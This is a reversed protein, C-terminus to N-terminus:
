FRGGGGGFSGGGFGGFGGGGGFGGFGGSSSHSISDIASFSSYSHSPKYEDKKETVKAKRNGLDEIDYDHDDAIDKAESFLMGVILFIEGIEIDDFFEDENDHTLTKMTIKRRSTVAAVASHAAVSASAEV